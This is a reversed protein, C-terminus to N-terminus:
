QATAPLALDLVDAVAGEDGLQLAALDGGQAAVGAHAPDREVRRDRRGRRGDVARLQERDVVLREVQRREPVSAQGALADADRDDVGADVLARAVELVQAGAQAPDDRTDVRGRARGRAGVAVAVAGVHGADRDAAGQGLGGPLVPALVDADR